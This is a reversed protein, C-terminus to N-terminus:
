SGSEEDRLRQKRNLEEEAEQQRVYCVGKKIAENMNEMPKYGLREKAKEISFTREVCTTEILMRRFTLPRMYGLTFIWYMWETLSALNLIFWAPIVRIQDPPTHDGAEKWVLRAFDWTPMPWGDTIFFAEGDVKPRDTDPNNIKALLAKAALVHALAANEGSTRDSKATNDGIQIRHKGEKMLRMMAPIIQSDREGYVACVRLTVTLFAKGNNDRVLQDAIAKSTAYANNTCNKATKLPWSEDGMDYSDGKLVGSSSTYVFAKVSSCGAAVRLLNKTGEVNTEFYFQDSSGNGSPIPSAIHFIIVPQVAELIATVDAESTFDGTHYEARPVQNKNINRSMVHVEFTPNKEALLAKVVHYGIFGCGGIVLVKIDSM